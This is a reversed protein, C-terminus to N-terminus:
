HEDKIGKKYGIKEFYRRLYVPTNAIMSRVEHMPPLYCDKTIERIENDTLNEM